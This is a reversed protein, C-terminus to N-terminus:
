LDLILGGEERIRQLIRPAAEEGFLRRALLELQDARVGSRGQEPSFTAVRRVGGLVTTWAYAAPDDPLRFPVAGASVFVRHVVDARYRDWGDLASGERSPGRPM